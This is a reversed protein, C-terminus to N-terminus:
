YDKNTNQNISENNGSDWHIANLLFSMVKHKNELLKYSHSADWKVYAGSIQKCIGTLEKFKVGPAGLHDTTSETLIESHCERCQLYM